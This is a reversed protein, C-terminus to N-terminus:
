SSTYARNISLYLIIAPDIGNAVKKFALKAVDLPQFVTRYFIILLIFNIIVFVVISATNFRSINDLKVEMMTQFVQALKDTRRVLEGGNNVIFEAAYELRPEQANDGIAVKLGDNFNAWNKTTKNLQQISSAGWNCNIVRDQGTLETPLTRQQFATIIATYNKLQKQLDKHYLHLDRQYSEYDRPAVKKYHQSQTVLNQAMIRLQGVLNLIAYDHKRLSLEYVSFSAMAVVLFLQLILASAIHTKLSQYWKM